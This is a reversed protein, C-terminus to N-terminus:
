EILLLVQLIRKLKASEPDLKKTLNEGPKCAVEEGDKIM